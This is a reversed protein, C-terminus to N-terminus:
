PPIKVGVSAAATAATGTTPPIAPGKRQGGANEGRNREEMEIEVAVLRKPSRGGTKPVARLNKRQARIAKRSEERFGKKVEDAVVKELPNDDVEMAHSLKDNARDIERRGLWEAIKAKGAAKGKKVETVKWLDTSMKPLIEAVQKAVNEILSSDKSNINPAINADYGIM